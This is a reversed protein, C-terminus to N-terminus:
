ILGMGTADESRPYISIGRSCRGLSPQVRLHKRHAPKLTRHMEKVADIGNNRTSIVMANGISHTFTEDPFSLANADM